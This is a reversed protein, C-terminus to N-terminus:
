YLDIGFDDLSVGDTSLITTLDTASTVNKLNFKKTAIATLAGIHEAAVGNAIGGNSTQLTGLTLSTIKDAAIVSNSFSFGSGTKLKVSAISDAAVFDTALNPFLQGDGLNGIGAYIESNVLDAASLNGLSGTADITSGSIGGKASLTKLDNSGATLDLTAGSLAGKVTLSGIAGASVTAGFSGGVNISKITGAATWTGTSVSPAKFSNMDTGGDSLTLGDSFDGTATLSGVYAATITGGSVTGVSVSNIAGSANIGGTLNADKGIISQLSQTDIEGINIYHTGGKTTITLASTGDTGTTTIGAIGLDGGSVKITTGSNAQTVSQGNLSVAATGDGRLRITATTGDADQYVMSTIGGTGLTVVPSTDTVDVNFTSSVATGGLDTATVTVSTKGGSNVPSLELQGNSASATVLNPNATTVTFNLGDPIVVPNITVVDATPIPNITATPITDPPVDTPGTYNSDVPLNSWAGNEATADVEGLNAITNVVTMGNYVVNGFATFPGGDATDDLDPTSGSGNNDVLNIFWQSTGSNPGNSLAMAITGTTNSLSHEGPITGFTNIGTGSADYGGGQLIFGPVTRHFITGAYEGTSIYHLFNTVTQPTASDTLVIPISGISVGNEEPQLDVATGTITPDNFYSSLQLTESSGSAALTQAPIQAVVSVTM